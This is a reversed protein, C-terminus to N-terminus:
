WACVFILMGFVWVDHHVKLTTVCNPLPCYLTSLKAVHLYHPLGCM